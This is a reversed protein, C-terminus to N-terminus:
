SLYRGFGVVGNQNVGWTPPLIWMSGD